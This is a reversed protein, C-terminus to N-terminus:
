AMVIVSFFTFIRGYSKRNRHKKGEYTKTVQVRRQQMYILLGLIKVSNRNILNPVFGQNSQAFYNTRRQNQIKDVVTTSIGVASLEFLNVWGNSDNVEFILDRPLQFLRGWQLGQENINTHEHLHKKYNLTIRIIFRCGENQNIPLIHKGQKYARSSMKGSNIVNLMQCIWVRRISVHNLKETKRKGNITPM